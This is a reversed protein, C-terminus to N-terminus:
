PVLDRFFFEAVASDKASVTYIVILMDLGKMQQTNSEIVWHHIRGYIPCEFHPTNSESNRRVDGSCLTRASITRSM